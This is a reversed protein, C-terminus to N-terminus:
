RQIVFETRRNKAFAAESPRKDLPKTEGYGTARLRSTAVGKGVLYDRVAEARKQSMKLNFEDNGRADTHVGIEVLGLKKDRTMLVAVADLTPRSESKITAKGVDFHITDAVIKSGVVRPEASAFTTLLVILAVLRV